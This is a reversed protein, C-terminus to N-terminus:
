GHSADTLTNLTLERSEFLAQDGADTVWMRQGLGHFQGAAPELWETKRALQLDPQTSDASGPYRSPILGFATGGNVWTFHAPLWVLDRLDTPPEIQINAIRQFPIWYYRGNVIAETVPGLRTDSDAIWEFAQGDLCGSTTPALEYAQARLEGAQQYQGQGSRKCAEILLAIWQEPEGFVLPTTEGKFVKERWLECRIAERYTQVMALNAAALEGSVNLQTLAREWRGMVALLQFLFVRHKANAPEAKVQNQLATLAVDLQGARVYEEVPNM